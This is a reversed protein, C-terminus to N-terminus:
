REDGGYDRHRRSPAEHGTTGRQSKRNLSPGRVRTEGFRKRPHTLPAPTVAIRFPRSASQAQHRPKRCAQGLAALTADGGARTAAVIPAVFSFAPTVHAMAGQAGAAPPRVIGGGWRAPV